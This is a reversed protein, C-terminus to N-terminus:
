SPIWEGKRVSAPFGVDTSASGIASPTTLNSDYTVVAIKADLDVSVDEVGDVRLMAKKVAIPRTACTMKEVDFTVIQSDESAWAVSAALALSVILALVLKMIRNESSFHHGFISPWPLACWVLQSGFHVKLSEIQYQRHAIHIMTARNNERAM